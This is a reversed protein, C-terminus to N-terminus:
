LRLCSRKSIGKFPYTGTKKKNKKEIKKKKKKQPFFMAGVQNVLFVM